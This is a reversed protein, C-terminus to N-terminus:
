INEKLMRVVDGLNGAIAYAMRIEESTPQNISPVMIVPIGAGRAARVGYGTDELVLCDEARKGAKELVCNYIEPDPKRRTVEDGCVAFLFRDCLGLASLRRETSVRDTTTAIARPIHLEDTLDLLENVYPMRGVNKDVMKRGYTRVEELITDKEPVDKLEREYVAEADKGSIGVLEKFVDGLQSVHHKNGVETWVKQWLFETDLLLGDVDFIILEPKKM